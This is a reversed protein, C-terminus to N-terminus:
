SGHACFPPPPSLVTGIGSESDLPPLRHLM